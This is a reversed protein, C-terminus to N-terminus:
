FDSRNLSFKGWFNYKILFIFKFKSKKYIFFLGLTSFSSHLLFLLSIKITPSFNQWNQAIIVLFFLGLFLLSFIKLIGLDKSKKEYLNIIKKAQSSSIIDNELWIELEKELNKIRM